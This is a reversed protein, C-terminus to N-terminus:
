QACGKALFQCIGKRRSDASPLSHGYFINRLWGGRFFASLIEAPNFRHGETELRRLDSRASAPPEVCICIQTPNSVDAGTCWQTTQWFFPFSLSSLPVPLVLIFALFLLVGGGEVRVLLIPLLGQGITLWYWNFSGSVCSVVGEGCGRVRGGRGYICILFNYLTNM